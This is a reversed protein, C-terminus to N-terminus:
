HVAHRLSLAVRREGLRVSEWAGLVRVRDEDDLRLLPRFGPGLVETGNTSGVDIAMLRRGRVLLMAHVRSVGADRSFRASEDCRAYRGLLLGERLEQLSTRVVDTQESLVPEGDVLRTYEGPARKSIFSVNSSEVEVDDPGALEPGVSPRDLLGVENAAFKEWPAAYVLAVEDRGVGFRLADPAALRRAVRGGPTVLGTETRLDMVEIPPGLRHDPWVLVLAHRLSAGRLGRVDCGPHRGIVLAFPQRSSPPLFFVRLSAPGQPSRYTVVGLAARDPQVARESRLEVLAARWDRVVGTDQLPDPVRGPVGVVTRGTDGVRASERGGGTTTM